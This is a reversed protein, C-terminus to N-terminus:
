SPSITVVLQRAAPDSIDTSFGCQDDYPYAYAQGFGYQRNNAVAHVASAYQNQYAVGPYFAALNCVEQTTVPAASTGLVGRTMASVILNGLNAAAAANTANQPWSGGPAAPPPVFAGNNALMQMTAPEGNWYAANFPSPLTAVLTSSTSPATYFNFNENGDVQGYLTAAPSAPVDNVTLWRPAQFANWVSMMSGDLFGANPFNTGGSLYMAKPNLVRYPMQYGLLSWPSGLAQLKSAVQSVAGTLLGTTQNQAGSLNLKLALGLADVQTTDVNFNQGPLWTYEVFDFYVSQSGDNNWPAPANPGAGAGAFSPIAITLPSSAIYIRASQLQPLYITQSVSGSAGFPISAVSGGPGLPQTSGNRNVSVWRTAAGYTGPIQGYVYLNIKSSVIQPHNNVLAFAVAGPVPSLVPAPSGSSPTPTAAPTPTPTPAAATPKPTAGAPSKSPSPAPSPTAPVPTAVPPAPSPASKDSTAVYIANTADIMILKSGFGSAELVSPGVPEFAGNSCDGNKFPTFEFITGGNTGTGYFGVTFFGAGGAAPVIRSGTGTCQVFASAGAPMNFVIGASNVVYLSADPLASVYQGTGPLQTWTGAVYKWISGDSTTSKETVYVTNNPDVAVDQANTGMGTWKAGAPNYNYLNGASTVAWLTGDPGSALRAAQGSVSTWGGGTYHWLYKDPGAPQTSLAWISGDAAYVAQKATGPIQTWTIRGSQTSRQRSAPSTMSNAARLATQVMAPPMSSGPSQSQPHVANMGGAAAATVATVSTTAPLAQPGNATVGAPAGPSCATGLLALLLLGSRSRCLM